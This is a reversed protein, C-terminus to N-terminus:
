NPTDETEIDLVQLGYHSNETWFELSGEEPHLRIRKVETTIVARATCGETLSKGTLSFSKGIEPLSHTRGEVEDTRLNEHVSELRSLIVELM